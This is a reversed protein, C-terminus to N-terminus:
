GVATDNQEARGLQRFQDAEAISNDHKIAAADGALDLPALDVSRSKSCATLVPSIGCAAYCHAGDAGFEM